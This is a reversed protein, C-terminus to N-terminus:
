TLTGDGIATTMGGERSCSITGIEHFELTALRASCVVNRLGDANPEVLIVDALLNLTWLRGAVMEVLLIVDKREAIPQISFLPNGDNVNARFQRVVAPGVRKHWCVLPAVVGLICHTAIVAV